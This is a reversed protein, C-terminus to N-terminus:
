VGAAARDQAHICGVSYRIAVATAPDIDGTVPQGFRAQIAKIAEATSSDMVGNEVLSPSVGLVNLDKQAFSIDLPSSLVELAQAVEPPSQMLTDVDGNLAYAKMTDLIRAATTAEHLHSLYDAITRQPRVPAYLAATPGRYHRLLPSSPSSYGRSAYHPQHHPQPYYGAREELRRTRRTALSWLVIAGPILLLLPLM